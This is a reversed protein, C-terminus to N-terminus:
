AWLEELLLWLELFSLSDFDLDRWLEDEQRVGDDLNFEVQLVEIFEAAALTM